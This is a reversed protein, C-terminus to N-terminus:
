HQELILQCPTTVSDEVVRCSLTLTTSSLSGTCTLTVAIGSASVSLQGNSVAGGLVSSMGSYGFVNSLFVSTSSAGAIITKSLVSGGTCITTDGGTAFVIASTDLYTGVFDDRTQLQLAQPQADGGDTPTGVDTGAGCGLLCSLGLACVMMALFWMSRKM